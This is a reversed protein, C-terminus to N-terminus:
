HGTPSIILYSSGSPVFIWFALIRYSNRIVTATIPCTPGKSGLAASPLRLYAAHDFSSKPGGYSDVVREFLIHNTM